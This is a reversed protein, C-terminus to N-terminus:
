SKRKIYQYLGEPIWFIAFLVLFILFLFFHKAEKEFIKKLKFTASNNLM